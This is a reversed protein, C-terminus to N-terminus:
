GESAWAALTRVPLHLRDAVQQRDLWTREADMPPAPALPPPQHEIAVQVAENVLDRLAQALRDAADTM